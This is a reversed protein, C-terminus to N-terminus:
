TRKKIESVVTTASIKLVRATDRIGSGNIAMKIIKDKIKPLLGLYSYELIFSIRSCNNNKCRFRQKSNSALGMKIVNKSKCSPCYVKTTAM